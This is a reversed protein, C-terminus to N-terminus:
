ILRKLAPPRSASTISAVNRFYNWVGAITRRAPQPHKSPHQQRLRDLATGLYRGSRAAPAVENADRHLVRLQIDADAFLRELDLGVAAADDVHNHVNIKLRAPM